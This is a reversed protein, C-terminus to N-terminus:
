SRFITGSPGPQFTRSRRPSQDLKGAAAARRLARAHVVVGLGARGIDAVQAEGIGSRADVRRRLQLAAPEARHVGVPRPHDSRLQHERARQATALCLQQVVPEVGAVGRGELVLALTPKTEPHADIDELHLEVGIGRRGRALREAVVLGALTWATSHVTRIKTWEAALVRRFPIHSRDSAAPAPRPDATPKELLTTTM